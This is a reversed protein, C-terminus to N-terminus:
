KTADVAEREADKQGHFLNDPTKGNAVAPLQKAVTETRKEPFAADITTTGDKLANALGRLILLDEGDLDDVSPKGVLGLLKDTTVGLKTFHGVMADRRTGITKQEGVAVARARAYIEDVLARPVVRFVANRLAISQAANATVAIMDDSYRRGKSDTIRRRLEFTCETNTQLDHAYGQAIIFNGDERIIRAGIRMNGWASAMIEALRVSPGTLQKGGRPLSYICAAAIEQTATALAEAQNLVTRISRPFRKAASIAGYSAHPIDTPVGPSEQGDDIEALENSM